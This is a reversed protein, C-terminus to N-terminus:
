VLIAGDVRGLKADFTGLPTHGHKRAVVLILCDAFEVGKNNRFIGLAAAIAEPDQLILSKHDLLREVVASIDARSKRYYSELVWITEVLAIHPVWAGSEVFDEAAVTQREDDRVMLRVLVNTDVARM